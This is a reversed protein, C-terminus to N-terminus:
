RAAAYLVVWDARASSCCASDGAGVPGAGVRRRQHSARKCGLGAYSRRPWRTSCRSRRVSAALETLTLGSAAALRDVHVDVRHAEEPPM